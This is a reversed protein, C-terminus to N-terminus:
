KWIIGGVNSRLNDKLRQDLEENSIYIDPIANIRKLERWYKREEKDKIKALNISRSKIITYLPESEPISELKISFEEYGLNLFEEYRM